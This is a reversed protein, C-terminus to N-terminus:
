ANPAQPIFLPCVCKRCIPNSSVNLTRRFVLAEPGNIVEHLLGRFLNGVPPHFFCPRVTGDAEVVASVWPANCRPAIPPSYDLHSRFHLVIRRLKEADEAVFGSRIESDYECILKEIEDALIPLDLADLSVSAQRETSWRQRRNFAESTLDAALFSISNLRLERATDITPRLHRFNGKQVTCRAAVAIAPRIRRLAAIGNALRAFARPIGRIENHIPQPGDLSVIIDDANEAVLQSFRELIVGATLLTVRIGQERLPKSLSALGSHLLPEGGSFVVWKVSLLRLSELHPALDSATIERTERIKWIDCMLCRCNCRNHPLLVLVPLERVFHASDRESPASATETVEATSSV